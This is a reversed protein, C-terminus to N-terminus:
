SAFDVQDITNKSTRETTRTQFELKIGDPGITVSKVRYGESEFRAKAKVANTVDAQRITQRESM